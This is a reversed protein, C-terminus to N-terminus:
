TDTITRAVLSELYEETTTALGPGSNGGVIYGGSARTGNQSGAFEGRAVTVASGGSWSTGDYLESTTLRSGDQATGSAIIASTQIGFGTTHSRAEALDGGTSWATGNYEETRDDEDSTYGGAVLGATLIGASAGDKSGTAMDGGVGWSTGDYEKTTVAISGGVIGGALVGATLIGFSQSTSYTTGIGNGATWSTGDYEYTSDVGGSGVDGGASVAATQIGFGKSFKISVLLNNGAAWSTGDYEVSRNSRSGTAGGWCLGASLTGAGGMGYDGSPFTGGASWAGINRAVKLVNSASNYWVLGDTLTPDSTLVEIGGAAAAKLLGSSRGLNDSIIGGM